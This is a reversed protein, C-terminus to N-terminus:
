RTGAARRGGTTRCVLNVVAASSGAVTELMEFPGVIPVGLISQGHKALDDDLLLIRSWREQRRNVTLALRVAEVNGAGCLYLTTGM